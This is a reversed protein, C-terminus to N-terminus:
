SFVTWLHLSYKIKLVGIDTIMMYMCSKLMNTKMKHEPNVLEMLFLMYPSLIILKQIHFIQIIGPTDTTHFINKNTKNCNAKCQVFM